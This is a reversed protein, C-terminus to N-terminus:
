ELRLRSLARRAVRAPRDTDDASRRVDDTNEQRRRAGRVLPRQGTKAPDNGADGYVLFKGDRSVDAASAVKSAVVEAAQGTGDAAQSAITRAQAPPLTRAFFVRDSSPSWAQPLEDGEGFTLRTQAGRMVDYIWVDYRGSGIAGVAVHRGDPSIRPERLGVKPQGITALVKGSADVSLMELPAMPAQPLFLLTGERSVSPLASQASILFPEGTTELTSLSFPVAWIGANNTTREYVIHGTGAYMPARLTENELHLIVKKAEGTFVSITDVLGSGRDLAYLLGRGDPLFTVDHFDQEGPAEPAVLTTLDGGDASVQQLGTGPMATTLVIRGDSGWTAGVGNGFSQRLVTVVVPAGGTVPVKLLRDGSVYAVHTSDPSWFFFRPDEATALERPELTTLDRLFLRGRSVYVLKTGDPSLQPASFPGSQLGDVPLTFKRLPVADAAPAPRLAWGAGGAAISAAAIAAVWAWPRRSM